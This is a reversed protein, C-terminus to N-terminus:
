QRRNAWWGLAMLVLGPVVVPVFDQAYAEVTSIGVVTEWTHLGGHLLHWGAAGTWWVVKNQPQRLGLFVVVATLFYMLGIDRIFHSNMPGTQVVTELSYYWSSPSVIMFISNALFAIGIIGATLAVPLSLKTQSQSADASSDM